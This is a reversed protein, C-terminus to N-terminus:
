RAARYVATLPPARRPRPLLRLGAPSPEDESLLDWVRPLVTARDYYVPAREGAGDSTTHVVGVAGPAPYSLMGVTTTAVVGSANMPADRMPHPCGGNRVVTRATEFVGGRRLTDEKVGLKAAIDAPTHGALMLRGAVWGRTDDVRARAERGARKGLRNPWLRELDLFLGHREEITCDDQVLWAMRAVGYLPDGARLVRREDDPLGTALVLEPDADDTRM